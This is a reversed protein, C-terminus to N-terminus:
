THYACIPPFVNRKIKIVMYISTPVVTLNPTYVITHCNAGIHLWHRDCRINHNQIEILALHVTYLLIHYLKDSCSVQNERNGVITFTFQREHVNERDFSRRSKVLGQFFAYCIYTLVNDVKLVINQLSWVVETDAGFILQKKKRCLV